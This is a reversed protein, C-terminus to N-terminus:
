ASRRRQRFGALGAVTCLALILSAPEPVVEFNVQGVNGNTLTIVLGDIYGDFGNWGSDTQVSIMELLESGYTSQFDAYNQPALNKKNERFTWGADDTSYQTWVDTATHDSYNNIFRYGFWSGGDDIGDPRTYLQVWWDRGSPTGGPRKTIYSISEIDAVTLTAADAPFLASLANGDALYRVHYNTKGTAPGQWSDPGFGTPADGLNARPQTEDPVDGPLVNITVTGAIVTSAALVWALGLVLATRTFLSMQPRIM